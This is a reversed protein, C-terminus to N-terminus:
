YLFEDSVLLLTAPLKGRSGALVALGPMIAAWACAQVRWSCSTPFPLAFARVLLLAAPLKGGFGALVALGPMIAAGVRLNHKFEGPSFRM